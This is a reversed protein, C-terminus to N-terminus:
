KSLDIGLDTLQKSLKAFHRNLLERYEIHLQGDTLTEELKYKNCSWSSVSPQGGNDMHWLAKRLREYLAIMDKLENLNM